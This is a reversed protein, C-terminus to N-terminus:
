MEYTYIFFLSFRISAFHAPLYVPSEYNSWHDNNHECKYKMSYSLMGCVHDFECAEIAAMIVVRINMRNAVKILLLRTISFYCQAWMSKSKTILIDYTSRESQKKSKIQNSQEAVTWFAFHHKIHPIYHVTSNFCKNILHIWMFGKTAVYHGWFVCSFGIKTSEFHRNNKDVNIEM